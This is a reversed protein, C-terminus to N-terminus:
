GVGAMQKIEEPSRQVFLRCHGEPRGRCEPVHHRRLHGCDGCTDEPRDYSSVDTLGEAIADGRAEWSLAGAVAADIWKRSKPHEKRVLWMQHGDDDKVNTESKRANAIHRAMREDGDHTVDEAQIATSYNRIMHCTQRPRTMNFEVIAKGWRGQWKEMLPSISGFISGPDIYVRLVNYNEFADTLVGDVVDMDHEYDDPASMPRELIALPWQFGTSVETAVMGLADRYRAGDVGITINAHLPVRHDRRILRRWTRYDFAFDEGPVIRNLFYREATATQGKELYNDIEGKIMELDVHESGSYVQRLMRDLERKNRISGPGSDSMQKYVNVGHEWTQQAVSEEAPDWANCIQIFRGGMGSLSRYQTDALKEGKNAKDWGQVEDQVAFTTRAGQRSKASATVPVIRGGNPLNIRTLGTDPIDVHLGSLEVMPLLADWVNGAQEESQATCVVLPSAWPRGVPEGDADWGDFRVPGAAEVLAVAAAFPSKGAKQPQVLLGGRSYVFARAPRKRADADVRKDADAHLSYFNLLFEAQAASPIFPEGRYDGDPIACNAVIWDMIQWGLTPVEGKSRPGRWPM